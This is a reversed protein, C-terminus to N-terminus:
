QRSFHSPHIMQYNLWLTKDYIFHWKIQLNEEWKTLLPLRQRRQVARHVQLVSTCVARNHLAMMKSISLLTQLFLQSICDWGKGLSAQNLFFFFFLGLSTVDHTLVGLCRSVSGRLHKSRWDPHNIHLDAAATAAPSGSSLAICAVHCLPPTCCLQTTEAAPAGRRGVLCDGSPLPASLPSLKFAILWYYLGAFHGHSLSGTGSPQFCCPLCTDGGDAQLWTHFHHFKTTTKKILKREKKGGKILQQRWM